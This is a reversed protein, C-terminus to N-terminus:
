STTAFRTKPVAVFAEENERLLCKAGSVFGCYSFSLAAVDPWLPNGLKFRRQAQSNRKAMAIAIAIVMANRATPEEGLITQSKAM